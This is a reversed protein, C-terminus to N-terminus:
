QLLHTCGVNHEAAFRSSIITMKGFRDWGKRLASECDDSM